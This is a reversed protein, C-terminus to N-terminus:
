RALLDIVDHLDSILIEILSAATRPVFIHLSEEISPAPTVAYKYLVDRAKAVTERNRHAFYNRFAILHEIGPNARAIAVLIAPENSLRLASAIGSINTPWQWSPENQMNYPPAKAGPRRGAKTRFFRWSAAWRYADDADVFRQACTVHAGDARTAGLASSAYFSRVFTAWLDVLEIVCYSVCYKQNRSSGIRPLVSSRARSLRQLAVKRLSRLELVRRM